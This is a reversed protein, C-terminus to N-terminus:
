LRNWRIYNTAVGNEILYLGDPLDSLPSILEAQIRKNKMLNRAKGYYYRFTEMEYGQLLLVMKGDIRSDNFARCCSITEGICLSCSAQSLFVLIREDEHSFCFKNEFLSDAKAGTIEIDESYLGSVFHRLYDADPNERCSIVFLSLFLIICYRVAWKM